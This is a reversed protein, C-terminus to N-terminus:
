QTDIELAVVSAKPLTYSFQASANSVPKSTVTVENPGGQSFRSNKDLKAPNAWKIGPAKFPETGTNADISAGSLIWAAAKGSPKTNKLSIQLPIDSDFNKNVAMVYLKNGRKSASVEVSAAGAVASVWGV